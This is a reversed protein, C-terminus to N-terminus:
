CRSLDSRILEIEIIQVFFYVVGNLYNIGYAEPIGFESVCVIFDALHDHFLQDSTTAVKLDDVEILVLASDAGELRWIM